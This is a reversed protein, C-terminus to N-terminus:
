RSGRGGRPPRQQPLEVEFRSGIGSSSDVKIQGGHAEVIGHVVSLGLGTGRGVDKTTFFPLFARDRVENSMGIGTDEVVLCVGHETNRTRITLAGGQPMAQISNVVLNVLVQLIQSADAWIPKIRRALHRQVTINERACRAELFSMGKQVIQNLDIHTKQPPTQRAFLMLKKVIERAFLAADVIKSLDRRAQQRLDTETQLLQAFGLVASLPENLEHAVGASLQGITALRDAHRLQEQLVASAADAERREIALAVQRAVTQLLKREEVLFPGEDLLPRPERYAVEVHGRRAGAICIPERQRQWRRDLKASGLVRRDFSIRASAVDPYRWATPLLEAIGNLLVEVTLDHQEVLQSVGYLCTLEKM